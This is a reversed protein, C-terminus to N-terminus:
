GDYDVWSEDKKSIIQIKEQWVGRIIPDDFRIGCESKPEFFNDSLYFASTNDELSLYGHAFGRPIILGKGLSSDLIISYSKKFTRSKPRLDIVVDQLSGHICYIIKSESWKGLQYHLGRLTGKALNHNQNAQKLEFNIGKNKM